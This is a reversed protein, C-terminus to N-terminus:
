RDWCKLIRTPPTVAPPLSPIPAPKPASVAASLLDIVAGASGGFEYRVTISRIGLREL